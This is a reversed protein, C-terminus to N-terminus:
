ILMLVGALGLADAVGLGSRPMLAFLADGAAFGFVTLPSPADVIEFTAAADGM